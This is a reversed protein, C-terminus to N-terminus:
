AAVPELRFLLGTAKLDRTEQQLDFVTLPHAEV